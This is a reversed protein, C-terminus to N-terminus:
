DHALHIGPGAKRGSLGSIYSLTARQLGPHAVRGAIHRLTRVMEQCLTRQAGGLTCDIFCGPGLNRQRNRSFDHIGGRIPM